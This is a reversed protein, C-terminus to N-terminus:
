GAPRCTGCIEPATCGKLVSRGAIPHASRWEMEAITRDYLQDIIIFNNWGIQGLSVINVAYYREAEYYLTSRASPMPHVVQNNALVTPTIAEASLDAFPEGALPLEFPEGKIDGARTLNDDKIGTGLTASHIDTAFYCV